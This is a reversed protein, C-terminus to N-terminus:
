ILLTTLLRLYSRPPAHRPSDYLFHEAVSSVQLRPVGALIFDPLTSVMPQLDITPANHYTTPNGKLLMYKMCPQKSLSEGGRQKTANDTTSSMAKCSVSLQAVSVNGTHMCSVLTVDGSAVILLLSIIVINIIISLRKM